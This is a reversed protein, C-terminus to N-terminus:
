KSLTTLLLGPEFVESEHKSLRSVMEATLNFAKEKQIEEFIARTDFDVDTIEAETQILTNLLANFKLEKEAALNYFPLNETIEKEIILPLQLKEMSFIIKIAPISEEVPNEIKILLELVKGGSIPTSYSKLTEAQISSINIMLITLTALTLNLTKM